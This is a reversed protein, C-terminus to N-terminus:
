GEVLTGIAAASTFGAGFAAMALARNAPLTEWFRDLALPISSSSTNGTDSLTTLVKSLPVDLAEAVNRLIRQSGPHPLLVELDNKTIKARDMAQRAANAMAKYATRAVAIGDMRLFKSTGFCPLHIAVDPDPLADCIPAAYGVSRTSDALPSQSILTATSADGFLFITAPDTADLMFSAVESTILLVANEPDGRLIDGALRLGYLFGCCAANFDFAIHPTALTGLERV